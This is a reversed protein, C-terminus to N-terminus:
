VIGEPGHQCIWDDAPPIQVLTVQNTVPDYFNRIGLASAPEAGAGCM